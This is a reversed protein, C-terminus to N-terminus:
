TATRLFNGFLVKFVKSLRRQNQTELQNLDISSQSRIGGITEGLGQRFTFTILNKGCQNQSQNTGNWLSFYPSTSNENNSM